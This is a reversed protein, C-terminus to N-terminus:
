HTLTHCGSGPPLLLLATCAEDSNRDLIKNSKRKGVDPSDIVVANTARIASITVLDLDAIVLYRCFSVKAAGFCLGKCNRGGDGM